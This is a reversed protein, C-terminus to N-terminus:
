RWHANLQAAIEAASQEHDAVRRRVQPDGDRYYIWWGGHHQCYSVKGVRRRLPKQKRARTM